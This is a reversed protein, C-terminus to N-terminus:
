GSDLHSTVMYEANTSDIHISRLVLGSYCFDSFHFTKLVNICRALGERPAKLCM